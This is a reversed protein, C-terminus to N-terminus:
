WGRARWEALHPREAGLTSDDGHGPYFWTDDPLAAFIREEVDDLLQAFRVPDQQTNGVGGPFLSDGTWLHPTGEPDRYVLAVSGPTHGRLAIVELDCRGVTVTDGHSLSRSVPVGTAETIAAADPEGALVAAGTAANVDALARHHDWHQHTTVVTALEEGVLPLLTEPEAAADILLQEGTSRCRLLYCNNSMQEDVAVKTVTLGALERVDAPGGPKVAGTYTSPVDSM